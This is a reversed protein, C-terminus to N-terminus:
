YAYILMKPPTKVLFTEAAMKLCFIKKKRIKNRLHLIIYVHEGVKLWIKNFFEKLFNTKLNM